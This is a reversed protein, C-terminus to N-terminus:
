PRGQNEVLFNKRIYMYLLIQLSSDAPKLFLILLYIFLNVRESTAMWKIKGYMEPQTQNLNEDGGGEGMKQM